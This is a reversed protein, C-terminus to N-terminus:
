RCQASFRVIDNSPRGAKGAPLTYDVACSQGAGEGWTVTLRDRAKEVRAYLQGAQGVSGVANGASDQVRAGFPVPQGDGATAMILLPVGTDTKFVIHSVAGDYPAVKESTNELDVSYKADKPDITIENMEYPNLYPVAAHGWPDIHIGSYGGVKAGSAGKAEVVAFTDGTYPTAVVGWPWGIVTGSMGVSGSQYDRGAGYTATLSTYPSRYGGNMAVSSGTGQNYSSGTVGYSYQHEDGATGSVGVQGGTRGGSDRSLSATMLPPNDAMESSLPLTMSLLWTTEMHGDMDRVRGASLSYSLRKWSNSYGFQYQLDTKDENWYNQTYGTMYVQGWSEPLGQNMTINFRNKPRWINNASRGHKEEDRAQMATQFDYYGSTSFRYAALTLNSNTDPIFKSYSLEYSQGSSSGSEMTKLHTRAQTVDASFAGVPTSVALGGQIAYYDAGSGQIGGYGTLINTLGREYTAQYLNPKSSLSTSNYRGAVLDYHHQGPRLLRTVSAYPVQFTQVTGDAETVMVDLNGGYGSPYLDNIVFAGPSVTTEYIVRGNQRVTVRANTRATGRIDPAYGRQSQPLMRDDNVLEIGRFPLTDFLQGGTSTEGIRVRGKIAPIDRQVYNNTSQYSGGSQEQWNYSGDHRFYWAGLNMGAHLGAYASNYSKGGSRTTYASANYGFLLAPVGEDWLEPSVYGRARNDMMAQPISIDLRQTGSDYLMRAQPILRDLPYCEQGQKLADNFAAPLQSYNLNIQKLIQASLCPRVRKDPQEAFVVKEHAVKEDNVYIDTPWTGPVASDSSEFRSLDIQRDGAAGLFAPDFSVTDAGASDGAQGATEPSSTSGAQASEAASAAGSPAAPRNEVALVGPVMASWIASALLSYHFHRRM